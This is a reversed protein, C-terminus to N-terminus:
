MAYCISAALCLILGKVNDFITDHDVLKTLTGYLTVGVGLLVIVVGIIHVKKYKYRKIFLCTFLCTWFVSSINIIFPYNFHIVSFAYINMFNAQSDFLTILIYPVKPISIKRNIIIWFLALLFYYSATLLLPIVVKMDKEIVMSFTANGIGLLALVQGIIINFIIFATSSYNQTPTNPNDTKLVTMTTKQSDKSEVLPKQLDESM